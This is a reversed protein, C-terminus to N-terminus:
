RLRTRAAMERRISNLESTLKIQNNQVRYLRAETDRLRNRVEKVQGELLHVYEIKPVDVFEDNIMVRKMHSGHIKMGGLVKVARKERQAIAQKQEKDGYM